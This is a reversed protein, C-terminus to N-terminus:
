NTHQELYDRLWRILKKRVDTEEESFFQSLQEDLEAMTEQKQIIKQLSQATYMCLNEYIEESEDPM